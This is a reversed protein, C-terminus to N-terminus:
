IQTEYKSKDKITQKQKLNIPCEWHFHKQHVREWAMGLTVSLRWGIYIFNHYQVTSVTNSQSDVLILCMNEWKAVQTMWM